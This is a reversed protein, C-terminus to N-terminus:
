LGQYGPPPPTSPTYPRVSINVRAGQRILAQEWAQLTPYSTNRLTDYVINSNARMFAVHHSWGGGAITEVEPRLPLGGRGAPTLEVLEGGGMRRALERSMGGCQESGALERHVQDMTRLTAQHEAAAAPAEPIRFGVLSVGAGFLALTSVGESDSPVAMGFAVVVGLLFLIGPNHGTIDIAITPANRCYVYLSGDGGSFGIPDKEIWRGLDPSYDRAGFRVLGTARDYM